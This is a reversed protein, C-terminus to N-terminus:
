VIPQPMQQTACHIGGGVEGIPDVNLTVIERGPYLEKLTTVAATDAKLDGFQAAIVAGNCVYYNPYSAVFNPSKVRPKEPEALDILEFSNGAADTEGQLIDYTEYASKSWPDDPYIEDPLQILVRKEGVFRALSDIHYDTIDAGVVGPAWIIKKAGFAELLMASVEQKDGSNRNPNIWSSEHAILTGHGDFEVGGPEGVLGNDLLPLGLRQAVRRAVQGDNQHTQKNGWGNFNFHQVALKGSANVVFAPGSDRAWLDDTPIDWIEIEDSLLRRASANYRNDMLMIVHEFASITNAIDAISQQLDALFYKDPHVIPSVPWQMFTAQHPKAEEPQRYKESTSQIAFGKTSLAASAFAAGAAFTFERRNITSKM